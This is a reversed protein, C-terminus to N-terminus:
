QCKQWLGLNNAKAMGEANIFKQSYKVDPPVTDLRAYGELVLKENIMTGDLWVYRLLRGYKDTESVDKELEVEKGEVLSQNETSAEKGFCQVAKRPDVTEPTDMGIYRVKQGGEIEVTDGDVVRVVKVKQRIVPSIYSSVSTLKVPLKVKKIEFEIAKGVIVSFFVIGLGLVLWKENNNTM